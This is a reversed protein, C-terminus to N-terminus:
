SLKFLSHPKVNLLSKLTSQNDIFVIVKRVVNKSIYSIAMHAAQMEADYSSHAAVLQSQSFITTNNCQVVFASVGQGKVKYSGDSAIAIQGATIDHCDQFWAKAWQDFVKSKHLPAVLINITIRLTYDLLHSGICAIPDHLQLLPLTAVM